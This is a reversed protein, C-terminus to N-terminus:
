PAPEEEVSIFRVSVPGLADVRGAAVAARTVADRVADGLARLPALAATLYLDVTYSGGARAAVVVGPLVGGPVATAYRGDGGDHGRVVGAVGLAASLALTALEMRESPPPM